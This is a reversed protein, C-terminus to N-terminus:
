WRRSLGCRMGLIQSPMKQDVDIHFKLSKEQARVWIMNVIDSLMAGVDYSVPVIDMKGSEM